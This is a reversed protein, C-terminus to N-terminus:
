QNRVKSIIEGCSRCSHVSEKFNELCLPICQCGAWCGLLCCVGSATYAMRSNQLKVISIGSQFCHPCTLLRPYIGLEEEDFTFSQATFIASSTRSTNYSFGSMQSSRMRPRKLENRNSVSQSKSKCMTVFAEDGQQGDIDSLRIILEDNQDSQFEM